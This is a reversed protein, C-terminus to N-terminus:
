QVNGDNRIVEFKRESGDDYKELVSGCCNRVIRGVPFRFISDYQRLRLHDGRVIM